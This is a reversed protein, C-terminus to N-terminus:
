FPGKLRARVNNLETQYRNLILHFKDAFRNISCLSLRVAIVHKTGNEWDLDDKYRYETFTIVLEYGSTEIEFQSAKFNQRKTNM